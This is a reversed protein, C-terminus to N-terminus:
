ISTVAEFLVTHDANSKNISDSVDTETLIKSVVARLTQVHPEDENQIM